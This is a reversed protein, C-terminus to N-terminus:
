VGAKDQTAKLMAMIDLAPMKPEDEETGEEPIDGTLIKEVAANRLKFAENEYNAYTFSDAQAERFINTLLDKEAPAPEVGDAAREKDGPQRIEALMPLERMVVLGSYASIVMLRERSASGWKCVLGVKEQALVSLLLAFEREGGKGPRLYYTGISFIMPLRTLPVIGSEMNVDLTDSKTADEILSLEYGSLEQWSNETVEVGKVKSEPTGGKTPCRETRDVPKMCCSCLDRLGTERQESWSKGVTVPVTFLGLRVKGTWMSRPSAM